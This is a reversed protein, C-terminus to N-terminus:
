KNSVSNTKFSVREGRIIGFSNQAVVRVYYNTKPDLDAVHAEVLLSGLGSGLATQKTSNLSTVGFLSDTSYEFWYTTEAGNPNISGHVKATSSAIDSVSKTTVSPAKPGAPGLTTFNLIVGNVTGFQNQANIRFYYTTLPDLNAIATSAPLKETGNGLSALATVSGLNVSQGYEFWYRTSAKNPTVEGALNATTRAVGSAVVTRVIPASGVPPANGETTSFSYQSGTVRGFHNEAVLRYYYTTNKALGTIYAPAGISVFGSGITQQPSAIRIILTASTGYEYWYSTFSGKPIVNGNLVATTDSPLVEKGTVVSPVGPSPTPVSPQNISGSGVPVAPNIIVDSVPTKQDAYILVGGILLLM